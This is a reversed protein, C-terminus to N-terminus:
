RVVLRLIQRLAASWAAFGSKFAIYNHYCIRFVALTSHNCRTEVSISNWGLCWCFLAKATSRLWHEFWHVLMLVRITRLLCVVQLFSWKLRSTHWSSWGLRIFLLQGYDLAVGLLLKMRNFPLLKICILFNRLFLSDRWCWLQLAVSYFSRRKFEFNIFNSGSWIFHSSPLFM